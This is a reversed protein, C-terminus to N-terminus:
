GLNRSMSQGTQSQSKTFSTLGELVESRRNNMQELKQQAIQNDTDKQSVYQKGEEIWTEFKLYNSTTDDKNGPTPAQSAYAECANGGGVGQAWSTPMFAKMPNFSYSSYFALAATRIAGWSVTDSTSTPKMSRIKALWENAAKVLKNNAKLEEMYIALSDDFNSVQNVRVSMYVDLLSVQQGNIFWHGNVNKIGGGDNVSLKSSERAYYDQMRAAVERWQALSLSVTPTVSQNATTNILSAYATRTDASLTNIDNLSFATRGLNVSGKISSLLTQYIDKVSSLTSKLTKAGTDTLGTGDMATWSVAALSGFGVNNTAM